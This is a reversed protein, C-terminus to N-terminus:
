VTCSACTARFYVMAGRILASGVAVDVVARVDVPVGTFRLLMGLAMMLVILICLRGSYLQTLSLKDGQGHIRAIEREASRKLVFRGKISGLVLAIAILAVVANDISGTLTGLGGALVTTDPNALAAKFLQVGKVLLFMGVILWVAGALRVLTKKNMEVM